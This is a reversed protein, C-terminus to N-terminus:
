CDMYNSIKNEQYSTIGKGVNPNITSYILDVLFLTVLIICIIRKKNDSIKEFLKDLFPAVVYICLCGGIGFFLIGELCIRGNLNLFYGTYDWWRKHNVVELYYSTSYELIACVLMVIIFTLIPNNLIKRMKKPIFLLLCFLCGFGYIPLWPGAYVGRKIFEGDIVLHIFVEWLFGVFSFSFFLLILSTLTYNHNFSQFFEKIKKEKDFYLKLNNNNVLLEDNLYKINKINEKKGNKRLEYYLETDTAKFYPYSYFIGSLSFSLFELIKWGIFSLDLLFTKWKNKYMLERSLNIADKYNISPNEAVIYPVLRYSYYKIFGGIFTLCWLVFFIDKIFLTKIANFYNKNKFLFLLRTIHTQKYNKNELFFRSEGVILPYKIFIHFSLVFFTFILVISSTSINLMIKNMANLLLNTISNETKDVVHFIYNIVGDSLDPTGHLYNTASKYKLYEVVTEYSPSELYSSVINIGFESTEYAENNYSVNYTGVIIGIILCVFVVSFYNKKVNGRAKTKLNKIKWM